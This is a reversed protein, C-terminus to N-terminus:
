YPQPVPPPWVRESEMVVDVPTEYIQMFTALPTPETLELLQAIRENSPMDLGLSEWKSLSAADGGSTSLHKGVKMMAICTDALLQTLQAEGDIEAYNSRVVSMKTSSWSPFYRKRVDEQAAIVKCTALMGSGLEVNMARLMPLIEGASGEMTVIFGGELLLLLGTVSAPPKAYGELLSALAPGDSGADALKGAMTMRTLPLLSRDAETLREITTDLLTATMTKNLEQSLAVGSLLPQTARM